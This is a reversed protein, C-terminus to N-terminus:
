TYGIVHASGMSRLSVSAGNLMAKAGELVTPSISAIKFFIQRFLKKRPFCPSAMNQLKVKSTSACISKMYLKLTSVLKLFLRKTNHLSFQGMLGNNQSKPSQTVVCDILSILKDLSCNYIGSILCFPWAFCFVLFSSLSIFFNVLEAFSLPVPHVPAYAGSLGVSPCRLM